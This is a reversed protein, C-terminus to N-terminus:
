MQNTLKRRPSGTGTTASYCSGWNTTSNVHSIVNQKQTHIYKSLLILNHLPTQLNRPMMQLNGHPQYFKQAHYCLWGQFLLYPLLISFNKIRFRSHHLILKHFPWYKSILKNNLVGQTDYKSTNGTKNVLIGLTLKQTLLFSLYFTVIGDLQPTHFTQLFKNWPDGIKKYKQPVLKQLRSLSKKKNPMLKQLKWFTHKISNSCKLIQILSLMCNVHFHCVSINFIIILMWITCWAGTHSITGESM